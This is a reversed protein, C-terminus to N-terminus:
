KVPSKLICAIITLVFSVVTAFTRISHLKNWPIEFNQRQKIMSEITASSVNFKDMTNNLPVNGVMTVGFSGIAYILSAALLLWFTTSMGSKYHLWTCVPLLILTGMFSAFFVPNLIEKNMSQIASLYNVDSLKGIGPIVSCSWAYYLGAILGTSTVTVVLILNQISM